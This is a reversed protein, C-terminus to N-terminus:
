RRVESIDSGPPIVVEDEDIQIRDSVHRILTGEAEHLYVLRCRPRGVLWQGCIAAFVKYGGSIVLDYETGGLGDLHTVLSRVRETLNSGRLATEVRILGPLVTGTGALAAVQEALHHAARHGLDTRDGATLFALHEYRRLFRSLLAQDLSALGEAEALRLITAVEASYRLPHAFDIAVQQTWKAANPASISAQLQSIISEGTRGTIADAPLYAARLEPNALCSNSLWADYGVIDLLCGSNEWSASRFLSTGVTVIMQKM